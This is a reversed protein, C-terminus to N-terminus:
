SLVDCNSNVTGCCGLLCDAGALGQEALTASLDRATPGRVHRGALDGPALEAVAESHHIQQYRAPEGAGFGVGPPTNLSFAEIQVVRGDFRRIKLEPLILKLSRRLPSEDNQPFPLFIVHLQHQDRLVASTRSCTSSATM